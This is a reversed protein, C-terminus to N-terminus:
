LPIQDGKTAHLYVHLYLVTIFSSFRHQTMNLLVPFTFKFEQKNEEHVPKTQRQFAPIHTQGPLFNDEEDEESHFVKWYLNLHQAISCSNM